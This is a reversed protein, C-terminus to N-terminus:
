KGIKEELSEREVRYAPHLALARKWYSIASGRDGRCAERDGLATLYEYSGEGIRTVLKEAEVLQKAGARCKGHRFAKEASVTKEELLHVDAFTQPSVRPDAPLGGRRIPTQARFSATLDFGLYAGSLAPGTSVYLTQDDGNFVVSHTAILPDIANRNGLALPEGDIEGKDRLIGLITREDAKKARRGEPFAAHLLAEGRAHRAGSTLDNKRFLNTEDHAFRPAVLHNAVLSPGHLPIIEMQRPSKEIRYLKGARSDLLVFIDTIFLTESKLIALAEEANSAYQLVKLLVLTSPTGIRRTDTTGAANISLYLGHDNVGTVAGVMGAWIVSVFANGEDPFVWKMIKERDFIRGGEFDFNRGLIWSKKTPAAAVTCGMLDSKQDVMMQGIEHIGHYAIQRTYGDGLDDFEHPASKSVGFMERTMWPEFYADIGRFYEIGLPELAIFLWRPILKFLRDTLAKEQERLLPETLRGSELGRVYPGGHLVLQNIGYTERGVWAGPPEDASALIAVPLAPPRFTGIHMMRIGWTLILAAALFFLRLAQNM